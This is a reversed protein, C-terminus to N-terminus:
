ISSHPITHLEHEIQFGGLVDAGTDSVDPSAGVTLEVVESQQM